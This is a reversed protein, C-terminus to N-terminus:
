AGNASSRAVGCCAASFKNDHEAGGRASVGGNTLRLALMRHHAASDRGGRARHM